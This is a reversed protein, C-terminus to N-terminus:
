VVWDGKRFLPVVEGSSTVGDINLESTGIMFDVHVASVNVGRGLLVESTLSTGDEIGIPFGNGFALHCSANEDFLTNYFLTNMQTIPSQQPVLAIEGLFRAGEDVDLGLVSTLEDSPLDATAKVIKGKEFHFILDNVLRGGYSLPMTSRVTGNTRGRDPSTFIEETPVNPTFSIGKGNKTTAGSIWVHREPLGVTLQTGQGEYHLEAFQMRNMYKQRERLRDLHIKWAAVPDEHDARVAKLLLEWLKEKAEPIRDEPFVRHAWATTVVSAVVWSVEMTGHYFKRFPAMAELEAKRYADTRESAIGQFLAPDPAYTMVFAADKKVAQLFRDVKWGDYEALRELSNREKQLRSIVPDFWHVEVESAGNDYARQTLRHIFSQSEIPTRFMEPGAGIVVPQGPQLNLGIKLILDCYNDLWSEPYAM